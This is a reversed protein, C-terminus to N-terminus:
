KLSRKQLSEYLLSRLAIDLNTDTKASVELYKCNHEDAVAKAEEFAVSRMHELDSKTGVLLLPIIPSLMRAVTLFWFPVNLFSQRDTISFTLLVGHTGSLFKSPKLYFRPHGSTDWLNVDLLSGKLSIRLLSVLINRTPLYQEQFSLNAMRRIMSSKGTREDGIFLLRCDIRASEM